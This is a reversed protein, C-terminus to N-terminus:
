PDRDPEGSAGAGCERRSNAGAGNGRRRPGWWGERLLPGLGLALVRALPYFLFVGLFALARAGARVPLGNM